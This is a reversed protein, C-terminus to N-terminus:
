FSDLPTSESAGVLGALRRGLLGARELASTEPPDSSHAKDRALFEEEFRMELGAVALASRSTWVAASVGFPDGGGRTLILAAPRKPGTHCEGLLYRRVWLPQCRDYLAKLQAPVGAFFVPTAVVVAVASTLAALVDAADDRQVCAGTTDCGGCARCPGISMRSVVVTRPTLGVDELTEAVRGLLIDSPGGRHPSGAICLVEQACM